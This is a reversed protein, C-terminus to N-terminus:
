FARPFQFHCPFLPFRILFMSFKRSIFFRARFFRPFPCSLVVFPL